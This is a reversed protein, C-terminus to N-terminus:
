ARLAAVATAADAQGTFMIAACGRQRPDARIAALAAMGDGAGLRHDIFAVDYVAGALRAGLDALGTAQDFQISLGARACARILRQRDFAVDDVVLGRLRPAATDPALRP